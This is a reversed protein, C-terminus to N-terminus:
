TREREILERLTVLAELIADLSVLGLEVAARHTNPIHALRADYIVGLGHEVFGLQARVTSVCKRARAGALVRPDAVLGSM